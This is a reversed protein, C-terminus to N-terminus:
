RQEFSAIQADIETLDSVVSTENALHSALSENLSRLLNAVDQLEQVLAEVPLANVASAVMPTLSTRQPHFGDIGLLRFQGIRQARELFPQLKALMQVQSSQSDNGAIATLISKLKFLDSIQLNILRLPGNGTAQKTFHEEDLGFGNVLGDMNSVTPQGYRAIRLAADIRDSSHKSSIKDILIDLAGLQMQAVGPAASAHAPVAPLVARAVRDRLRSRAEFYKTLGATSDCPAATKEVSTQFKEIMDAVAAHRELLRISYKGLIFNKLSMLSDGITKLRIGGDKTAVLSASPYAM